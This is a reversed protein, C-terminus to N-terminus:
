QSDDQHISSSLSAQAALWSNGDALVESFFAKSRYKALKDGLQVQMKRRYERANVGYYQKFSRAFQKPDSWGVRNGVEGVPIRESLLLTAALEARRNALYKMPAFGTNAHFLRVLYSPNVHLDSALERLTWTRSMDREFLQLARRVSPHVDLPREPSNGIRQASSALLHLLILLRGLVEVRSSDSRAYAGHLAELAARLAPRMQPPVKLEILDPNYARSPPLLERLDKDQASWGLENQLLHPSLLCNYIELDRCQTYGHWAGPPIIFVSGARCIKSGRVTLHKTQGQMLFALELYAHDHAGTDEHKDIHNMWFWTGQAVRVRHFAQRQDFIAEGPQQSPPKM